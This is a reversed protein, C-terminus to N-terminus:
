FITELFTVVMRRNIVGLRFFWPQKKDHIDKSNSFNRRIEDWHQIITRLLNEPAQEKKVYKHSVIIRLM